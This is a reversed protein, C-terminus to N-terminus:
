YNEEAYEKFHKHRISYMNKYNFYKMEINYLDLYNYPKTARNLLDRQLNGGGFVHRVNFYMVLAKKDTVGRKTAEDIYDRYNEVMFDHQAQKGDESTIINIIAQAKASEKTICFHGWNQNDVDDSINATDLKRFTEPYEKRIKKLLLQGNQGYWGGVGITISIENETLNYCGGFNNYLPVGNSDLGGEHAFMLMVLKEIEESSFDGYSDAKHTVKSNNKSKSNSKKVNSNLFNSIYGSKNRETNDVFGSTSEPCNTTSYYLFCKICSGMTDKDVDNSTAQNIVFRVISGMLFIVAAIIFKKLISKRAKDIEDAKGSSNAKVLTIICFIILIIPTGVILLTYIMTIIQPIPKPINEATGCKVYELDNIIKTSINSLDKYYILILGVIFYYIFVLKNIKKM